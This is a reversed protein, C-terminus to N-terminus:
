CGPPYTRRSIERGSADFLAATDPSTNNWIGSPRGFSFGGWEPHVENTYIRVRQKPRLDNDPFTFSPSGDSIDKLVWGKLNGSSDGLNEVEVYEDAETKSVKGDYFICRIAVQFAAAPTPTLTALPTPIPAPTPTPPPAAPPAAM